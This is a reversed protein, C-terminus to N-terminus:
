VSLAFDEVPSEVVVKKSNELENLICRYHADSFAKQKAPTMKALWAKEIANSEAVTEASYVAMLYDRMEQTEPQMREVFRLLNKHSVKRPIDPENMIQELLAEREKNM